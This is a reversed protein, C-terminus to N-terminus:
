THCRTTSSSGAWTSRRGNSNPTTLSPTRILTSSATTCNHWTGSLAQILVTIGADPVKLPGQEASPRAAWNSAVFRKTASAKEAAKILNIQSRGVGILHIALASIVTEIHHKELVAQLADVDDYDVAVIPLGMDNNDPIQEYKKDTAAERNAFRHDKSIYM